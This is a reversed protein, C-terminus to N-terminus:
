RGGRVLIEQRFPVDEWEKVLRCLEYFPINTSIVHIPGEKKVGFFSPRHYAFYGTHDIDEYLYKIDIRELNDIVQPEECKYFIWPGLDAPYRDYSYVVKVETNCPLITQLQATDLFLTSRDVSLNFFLM